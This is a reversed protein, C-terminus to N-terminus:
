AMGVLVRRSGRYPMRGHAALVNDLLMIDEAQWAVPVTEAAYARRIEDLMPEPIPSGDGFYANRPLEDTGLESLFRLRIEREVNSIHFLHAQNFWVHEMTVPHRIVAECIQRTRLGDRDKWEVDISEEACFREVEAREATGFVTQWPLDLGRSYNRVYMVKGAEFASRTKDGIRACVRRSDAIPTEGGAESPQVCYFGIHTPWRRAYSMENHLPIVQEPPYETSTYIRGRVNTRPTSQYRYDILERGTAARLFAEFRDIGGVHWNRFLVGGHSLLLDDIESRHAEAWSVLDVGSMAPEILMPLDGDPRLPKMTVLTRGSVAVVKRKVAGLSPRGIGASVTQNNM